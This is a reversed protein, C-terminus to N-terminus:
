AWFDQPHIVSMELTGGNCYIIAPCGYHYVNAIVADNSKLWEETHIQIFGRLVEPIDSDPVKPM